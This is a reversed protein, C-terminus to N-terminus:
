CRSCSPGPTDGPGYTDSLKLTVAKVGATEVYYALLAEFAEKTAAYLCVPNYGANEFHQWFTGTNVLRTAGNRSMAEVLQAGFLVNDRLLPTVDRVEHQALFLSSLHFVTGPRIAGVMAVLSETTGNHTHTAVDIGDIRAPDSQPRLLLHVRWGEAILRRVLASGIFGSGGTILAIRQPPM